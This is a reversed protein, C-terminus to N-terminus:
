GFMRFLMDLEFSTQNVIDMDPNLCWHILNGRIHKIFYNTLYEKTYNNSFQHQELALEVFYAVCRYYTREKNVAGKSSSSLIARYYEVVLAHPFSSVFVIQDLLLSKLTDLPNSDDYENLRSDLNYDYILFSEDIMEEKTSFHHYFAGVSIGADKCIDRITLNEFGNEIAIRRATELIKDKTAHIEKLM